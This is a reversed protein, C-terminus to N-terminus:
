AASATRDPKEREGERSERRRDLGLVEALVLDLVFAEIETHELGLVEVDMKIGGLFSGCGVGAAHGLAPIGPERANQIMFQVAPLRQDQIRARGLELLGIGNTAAYPLPGATHCLGQAATDDEGCPSGEGIQIVDNAVLQDM